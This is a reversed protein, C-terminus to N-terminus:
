KLEAPVQVVHPFASITYHITPIFAKTEPTSPLYGASGNELELKDVVSM